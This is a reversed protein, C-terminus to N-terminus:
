WIGTAAVCRRRGTARGGPAAQRDAQHAGQGAGAGLQGVAPGHVLATPPTERAQYDEDLIILWWVLQSYNTNITLGSEIIQWFCYALERQM